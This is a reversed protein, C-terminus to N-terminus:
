NKLQSDEFVKLLVLGEPGQQFPTIMLNEPGKFIITARGQNKEENSLNENIKDSTLVFHGYKSIKVDFKQSCSGNFNRYICISVSTEINNYNYVDIGTWWKGHKGVAYPIVYSKM